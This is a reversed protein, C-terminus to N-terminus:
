PMSLFAACIALPASSANKIIQQETAHSICCQFQDPSDTELELCYTGTEAVHEVIEWAAQISGSYDPPNPKQCIVDDPKRYVPPSMWGLAGSLMWGLKRAVAENIEANTM